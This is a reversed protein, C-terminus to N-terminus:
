HGGGGGRRVSRVKQIVGIRAKERTTLCGLRSLFSRLYKGWSQRQFCKKEELKCGSEKLSSKNSLKTLGLDKIM